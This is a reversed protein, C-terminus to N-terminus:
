EELLKKGPAIKVVSGGPLANPPLQETAKWYSKVLVTKDHDEPKNPPRRKHSRVVRADVINGTGSDVYSLRNRSPSFSVINRLSLVESRETIVSGLKTGGKEKIKRRHEPRVLPHSRVGGPAEDQQEDSKSDDHPASNMYM